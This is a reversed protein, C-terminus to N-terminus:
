RLGDRIIAALEASAAPDTQVDWDVVGTGRQHVKGRSPLQSWAVIRIWPMTALMRRLDALWRVRDAYATNVETLVVPKRYTEHLWRLRPRSAARGPLVQRRRLRDDDLRRRRRLPQGALVAAPRPAVDRQSEYLNPNVSWVFRVNRAGRSTSSGCSGGGRTARLRAAGHSWPYWYGNM